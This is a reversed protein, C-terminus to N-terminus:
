VSHNSICTWCFINKCLNCGYRVTRRVQHEGCKHCQARSEKLEAVQGFTPTCDKRDTWKGVLKKKSERNKERARKERKMAEMCLATGIMLMAESSTMCDDSGSMAQFTTWLIWSNAVWLGLHHEFITQRWSQHKRPIGLLKRIFDNLDVGGMGSNYYAVAVPRTIWAETWDKGSALARVITGCKEAEAPCSGKLWRKASDLQGGLAVNTLVGVIKNDAWVYVGLGNSVVYSLSGRDKGIMDWAFGPIGVRRNQVTGVAGIGKAGLKGFLYVSSYYNDFFVTTQHWHKTSDIAGTDELRQVLDLCVDTTFGYGTPDISLPTSSGIYIIYSIMFGTVGCCIAFWKQGYRDRKNPMFAKGFLRGFFRCMAEDISAYFVKAVCLLSQLNTHQYLKNIAWLPDGLKFIGFVTINNFFCFLKYSM